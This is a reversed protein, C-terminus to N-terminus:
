KDQNTEIGTNGSALHQEISTRFRKLFSMYWDLDPRKGDLTRNEYDLEYNELKQKLNRPLINKVALAFAM